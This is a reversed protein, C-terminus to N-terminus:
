KAKKRLLTQAMRKHWMAIRLAFRSYLMYDATSAPSPDPNLGLGAFQQQVHEHLKAYQNTRKEDSKAALFGLTNLLGCTRLFIPFSECLTRYDTESPHDKGPQVQDKVLDRAKVSITAELNM